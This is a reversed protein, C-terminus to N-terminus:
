GGVMCVACVSIFVCEGSMIKVNGTPVTECVFLHKGLCFPVYKHPSKSGSVSSFGVSPANLQQFDSNM